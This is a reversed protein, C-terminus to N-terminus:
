EVRKFKAAYTGSGGLVLSDESLEAIDYYVRTDDITFVLADREVDFYVVTGSNEAYREKLYDVLGVGDDEVTGNSYFTIYQGGGYTTQEWKGVIKAQGNDKRTMVFFVVFVAAVLVLAIITMPLNKRSNRISPPIFGEASGSQGYREPQDLLQGYSGRFNNAYGGNYASPTPNFRSTYSGYGQGGYYGGSQASSGYQGSGYRSGPAQQSASYPNANPRQQSYGAAPSRSGPM